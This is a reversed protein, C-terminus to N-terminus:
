DVNEAGMATIAHPLETILRDIRGLVGRVDSFRRGEELTWRFWNDLGFVVGTAHLFQTVREADEPLARVAAYARWAEPWRDALPLHAMAERPQWSGVLRALDTAPTDIGAAQADIFGTVRCEHRDVFLVHEHWVDRLVPQVVCARPEGRAVRAIFADGGCDALVRRALSARAAVAGCLNPVVERGGPLPRTVFRSWPEHLLDVARRRRAVLSRPLARGPAKGPLTAAAEHVGALATAAAAAQRGDPQPVPAGHLFHSLEWLGGTGDEWLTAGAPTAELDAIHPEARTAVHQILRHVFDARNRDAGEALRKLVFLRGSATHEVQSVDAGSHGATFLRTIRLGGAPLWQRAVALRVDDSPM